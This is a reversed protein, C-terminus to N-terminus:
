MVPSSSNLLLKEVSQRRIEQGGTIRMRGDHSSLNRRVGATFYFLGVAM